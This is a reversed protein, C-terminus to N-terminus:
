VPDRGCGRIVCVENYAQTIVAPLRHDRFYDYCALRCGEFQYYDDVIIIADSALFPVLYRLCTLTSDYWDGDLRLIAIPSVPRFSPMTEQFWGNILHVNVAGSREMAQQAVDM